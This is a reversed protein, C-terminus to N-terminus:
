RGIQQVVCLILTLKKYCPEIHIGHVDHNIIEPVMDCQTKHHNCGGLTEREIKANRIRQENVDNIAKIGSYKNYKEYHIICSSVHLKSTM